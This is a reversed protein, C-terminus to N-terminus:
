VMENVVNANAVYISLFRGMLGYLLIPFQIAYEAIPIIIKKNIIVVAVRKNAFPAISLRLLILDMM